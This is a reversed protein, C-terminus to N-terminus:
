WLDHHTFQFDWRVRGTAIDLAVLGASYKESEKTRNGGWQDPTQNGMPLYIMGLKEDVSFMSWMNPSNRTYIKGDAIPATEEPNGSDWNWVLRGTHVDYARIVGSP